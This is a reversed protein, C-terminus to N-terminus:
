SVSPPPMLLLLLLLMEGGGGSVRFAARATFFPHRRKAVNHQQWLFLAM